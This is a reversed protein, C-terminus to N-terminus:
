LWSTRLTFDLRLQDFEELFSCDQPPHPDHSAPPYALAAHKQTGLHERMVRVPKAPGIMVGM